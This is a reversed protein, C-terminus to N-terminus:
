YTNSRRVLHQSTQQTAISSFSTTRTHNKKIDLLIIRAETNATGHHIRVISNTKLPKSDLDFRSSCELIIDLTLVPILYEPSALVSGRKIESQAIDTLNVAARLGTTLMDSSQTHNHLSRIRSKKGPPYVGISDNILLPNGTLTGTVVTGMGKLSFSRDVLLRTPGGEKRKPLTKLASLISNKLDTLGEGTKSSFPVIESDALISADLKKRISNIKFNIEKVLDTKTLVVIGKKIGLYNIIQLHEETQPMWGDEASVVMLILDVACVGSVM